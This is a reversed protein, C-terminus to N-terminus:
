NTVPRFGQYKREIYVHHCNITYKLPHKRSPLPSKVPALYKANQMCQVRNALRNVTRCVSGCAGADPLKQGSGCDGLEDGRQNFVSMVM